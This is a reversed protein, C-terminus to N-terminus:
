KRRNSTQAPAIKRVEKKNVINIHKQAQFTGEHETLSMPPADFATDITVISKSDIGSFIIRQNSAIYCTELELEEVRLRRVEVWVDNIQAFPVLCKFVHGGSTHIRYTYLAINKDIM